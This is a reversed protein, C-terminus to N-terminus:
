YCILCRRVRIWIDHTISVRPSKRARKELIITRVTESCDMCGAQGAFEDFYYKDVGLNFSSIDISDGAYQSCFKDHFIGMSLKQTYGDCRPRIFYGGEVQVCDIIDLYGQADLTNGNVDQDELKRNNNNSCVANGDSDFCYTNFGNCASGYGGGYSDDGYYKQYQQQETRRQRGAVDAGCAQCYECLQEEQDMKHRVMIRIYDRLNVAYDAYDYSCGYERSDSCYFSPCLRLMVIDDLVMPSYEGSSVANPSFRQVPQCKAYKIAFGNFSLYDSNSVYYDDDNQEDEAEQGGVDEKGDDNYQYYYYKAQEDLRRTIDEDENEEGWLYLGQARLTAKYQDLPVAKALLADNTSAARGRTSLGGATKGM